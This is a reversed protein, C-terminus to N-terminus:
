KTGLLPQTGGQYQSPEQLVVRSICLQINIMNYLIMDSKEYTYYPFTCIM